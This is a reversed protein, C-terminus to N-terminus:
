IFSFEPELLGRTGGKQFSFRRIMPGRDTSIQVVFAGDEIFSRIVNCASLSRNIINLAERKSRVDICSTDTYIVERKTNKLKDEIVITIM